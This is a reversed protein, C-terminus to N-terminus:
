PNTGYARMNADHPVLVKGSPFRAAFREFSEVRSPLMPLVRGTYEGVVGRGLFQQWWSETSDDWMVLDSNPLKGTTGFRLTRGDLTRDFVIATDCLPCYTVAVAM